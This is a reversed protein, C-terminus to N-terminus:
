IPLAIVNYWFPIERNKWVSLHNKAFRYYNRYSTIPCAVKYEDPMALAFPTLEGEPISLSKSLCYNIVDKCKHVKQYRYTYEDCLALGLKCLWLFNTRTKGAWLTCPHNVHCSRYPTEISLKNLNTCLMQASELPMKVIHKNNHWRACEVPDNSLVFINM